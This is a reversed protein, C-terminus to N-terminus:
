KSCWFQWWSCKHPEEEPPNGNNDDGDGDGNGPDPLTSNQTSNSTFTWDQCDICNTAEICRAPEKYVELVDSIVKKIRHSNLSLAWGLDNITDYACEYGTHCRTEMAYGGYWCTSTPGQCVGMYIPDASHGFHYVSTDKASFGPPLPLHLRRAALMDGPAEFTVTPLGFTLGALSAVAGGLSHGVMWINVAHPFQQTVNYFIDLASRYYRDNAAISRELCEQDCTRTSSYCDCVTHWISSVRACCCSFLLNDNIKDQTTTGSGDFVAPSTGKLSIILTSYMEDSFVHGRLGSNEWGFDGSSNWGVTPLWEVSDPDDIYANSTLKALNLVTMYDEVDPELITDYEWMDASPTIGDLAQYAEMAERDYRTRLRRVQRERYKFGLPEPTAYGDRSGSSDIMFVREAVATTCLILITWMKAKDMMIMMM